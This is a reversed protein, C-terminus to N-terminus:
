INITTILNHLSHKVKRCNHTQTHLLTAMYGILLM